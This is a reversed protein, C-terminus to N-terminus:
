ISPMSIITENSIVFYKIYNVSASINKIFQVIIVNNRRKGKRGGDEGM